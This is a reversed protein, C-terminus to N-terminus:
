GKDGPDFDIERINVDRKSPEGTMLVDAVRRSEGRVTLEGGFAATLRLRYRGRPQGPALLVFSKNNGLAPPTVFSAGPSPGITVKQRPGILRYALIRGQWVMAIQLLSTPTM